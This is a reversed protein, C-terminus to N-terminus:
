EDGAATAVLEVQFSTPAPGKVIAGMTYVADPQLGTAACWEPLGFAWLGGEVDPVAGQPAVPKLPTPPPRRHDTLLVYTSQCHSSPVAARRWTACVLAPSVM